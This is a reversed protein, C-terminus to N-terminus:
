HRVTVPATCVSAPLGAPANHSASCLAKIEAADRAMKRNAPGGKIAHLRTSTGAVAPASTMRTISRTPPLRHVRATRTGRLIRAKAVRSRQAAPLKDIASRIAQEIQDTEVATPPQAVATGATSGSWERPNLVGVDAGDNARVAGVPHAIPTGTWVLHLGGNVFPVSAGPDFISSTAVAPGLHFRVYVGAAPSPPPVVSIIPGSTGDTGVFETKDWNVDVSTMGPLWRLRFTYDEFGANWIQSSCYGEDGQNRVFMLWVEDKPDNEFNDRLTALAYLPHLEAKMGHEGDLGFMGTLITHGRFLQSARDQNNDVARHFAAWELSTFNDVTEDSDFEVHLGSRGNVSLPNAQEQSNYSFTYDDDGFPFVDGHDVRGASGEVTIPFWNVHGSFTDGFYPTTAYRCLTGNIEIPEDVSSTDAQDTCDAFSPSMFEDPIGLTSGRTSFNHCQSTNPIKGQNEPRQQWSWLPNYPLGNPDLANSIVDFDFRSGTTDPPVARYITVTLHAPGGDLGHTPDIKCQDETGDDHSYYGNDSYGDDEYGLHLMLESSPVGVGTVQLQKGIVSNIRVLASNQTGTLIRILGHYLSVSNPGSPNVYRKWTNGHGGTQVCGDATVEVIDGPAFLVSPYATEHETVVPEVIM